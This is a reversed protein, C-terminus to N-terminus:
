DDLDELIGGWEVYTKEVDVGLRRLRVKNLRIMQRTWRKIYAESHSKDTPKSKALEKEGVTATVTWEATYFLADCRDVITLTASGITPLTEPANEDCLELDLESFGNYIMNFM